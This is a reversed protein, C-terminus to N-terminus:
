SRVKMILSDHVAHDRGHEKCLVFLVEGTTDLIVTVSPARCGSSDTCRPYAELAEKVARAEDEPTM